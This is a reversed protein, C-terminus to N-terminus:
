EENELHIRSKMQKLDFQTTILTSDKSSCLLYVSKGNDMMLIESTFFGDNKGFSHVASSDQTILNGLTSREKAFKQLSPEVPIGVFLEHNASRAYKFLPITISQSGTIKSFTERAYQDYSYVKESDILQVYSDNYLEVKNPDASSCAFLLLALLFYISKKM